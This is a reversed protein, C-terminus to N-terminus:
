SRAVAIRAESLRACEVAVEFAGIDAGNMGNGGEFSWLLFFDAAVDGHDVSPTVPAPANVLFSPAVNLVFRTFRDTSSSSEKTFIL